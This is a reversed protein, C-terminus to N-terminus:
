GGRLGGAVEAAEAATGAPAIRVTWAMRAPARGAAALDVVVTRGPHPAAAQRDPRTLRVVAGAAGGSVPVIVYGAGRASRVHLFAIRALGIRSGRGRPRVEVRRGDHLVAIIRAEHGWSPFSAEVSRDRSGPAITWALEAFEARFRHRASVRAGARRVSARTVLEHFPGAHLAAPGEGHASRVRGRPSIALELAIRERPAGGGGPQTALLRRGHRDRVVVGFAAPPQGGTTAAVRGSGDYLRAPEIGGYPFAHQDHAVIATSYARTSVALRGTDPDFSYLPPPESATMGGIGYAVARAANAAFRAASFRHVGTGEPHERVGVDYLNTPVIGDPTRAAFREYLQFGRDLIWKAWAGYEPSPQFRPSAAIAILGQQAYAWYKALHWRRFGLGTDWNVAGAHTWYGCLTRAVWRRYIALEREALPRMGAALAQEYWLLCHITINAYEPSDLNYPHGAPEHPLYHFQYGRGLNRTGGPALPREVGRAFRELQARYDVRLLEGAGAVRAAYASLESPWNLQNLRINPYRFFAGRACRGVRDEILRLTRAPLAAREGAQWAFALGEAVKPDYGKDFGGDHRMSSTWGPFHFMRDVHFPRRHESWPPAECLRLALARVREDNRAPGDHGHLAAVAHLTLLNANLITGVGVGTTTYMRAAGDWDRDLRTAIADAFSWYGRDDLPPDAVRIAVEAARAPDPGGLGLGGLGGPDGLRLGGGLAAGAALGGARTLLDRRSLPDPPTM